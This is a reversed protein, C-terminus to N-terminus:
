CTPVRTHTIVSVTLFMKPKDHTKLKNPEVHKRRKRKKENLHLFKAAWTLPISHLAPLRTSEKTVKKAVGVHITFVLCGREM